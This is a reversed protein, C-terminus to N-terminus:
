VVTFKIGFHNLVDSDDKDIRSCVILLPLLLTDPNERHYLFRYGLVQGLTYLGVRKKVEIIQAFNGKWALVDIRKKTLNKWYDIKGQDWDKLTEAGEGVKIDYDVTEYKDPFKKIFRNWLDRDEGILHPYKHRVEYNFQGAM